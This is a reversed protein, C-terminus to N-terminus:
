VRVREREPREQTDFGFLEELIGVPDSHGLEMDDEIMEACTRAILRVMNFMTTRRDEAAALELLTEEALKQCLPTVSM